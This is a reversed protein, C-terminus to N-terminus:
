QINMYDIFEWSPNLTAILQEKKLRTWGKIEKERKIALNINSFREFYVLNNCKYRKTFSKSTLDIENHESVRRSLNNTVGIYLV